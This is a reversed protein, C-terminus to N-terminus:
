ILKLYKYIKHILISLESTPAKKVAECALYFRLNEGSFENECFKMFEKVGTPDSLLERFSFSWRKVRLQTPQEVLPASVDWMTTDDSIWPNSPQCHGFLGDYENYAESFACLSLFCFPKNQFFIKFNLDITFYGQLTQSSKTRVRNRLSIELFKIKKKFFDEKKSIKSIPTRLTTRIDEEVISPV